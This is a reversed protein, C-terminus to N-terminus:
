LRDAQREAARGGGLLMLMHVSLFPFIVGPPSRTKKIRKMNKEKREGKKKEGDKEEEEENGRRKRKEVGGRFVSKKERREGM